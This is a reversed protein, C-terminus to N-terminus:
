VQGSAIQGPRLITTRTVLIEMGKVPEVFTDLIGINKEIVDAPNNTEDMVNRFNYVGNEAQVTAMFNDALTKIELRTQATNFEFLYNKLIAALGDQIYIMVERVHASSLASQVNQQATKNAFIVLGTGNQFIIPNLGFPEISDRDTKSYNYEVGIVGRGGVIGRRNGAVISWPLATTYKDIYNNSVYGAPPVQINAGNERVTLFPTYFAGYNSGQTIGPLTYRITPNKSLNGGDAVYATDFQGLLNLFSPDTSKKFNEVSPANVIAFANQRAKALEFYIAKSGAEIGNGFTDVIYRYSINDKDALAQALKTGSLTDYLINNQQDNTGNPLNYSGLSFGDLTFLNYYDVWETIATYAEVTDVSNITRILIQGECVIKLADVGPTYNSIGIVEKIYTLRSPTTASGTSQILYKGVAVYPSADASVIVENAALSSGPTGSYELVNVTENLSGKYSQVGLVGQAYATDTTDFFYYGPQNIGFDADTTILDQFNADAFANIIFTPIDYTSDSIVISTPVGAIEHYIYSSTSPNFDLYLIQSGGITAGFVAKDGDTLVGNSIDTYLDSSPGCIITGTNGDKQAVFNLDAAKLYKLHTTGVFPSTSIGSGSITILVYSTTVTVDTVPIAKTGAENILFDGVVGTSNAKLNKFINYAAPAGSSSALLDWDGNTNHTVTVGNFIISRYFSSDQAYDLDSAITAQYSLFDITKPNVRELEHGILDLGKDVGDILEGLDFMAKNVACFLGTSPTDANIMDEIFLNNGNLDTFGPIMCGTYAAVLSVQSLNNFQEVYTDSTDTVSVKRKLGQQKDFYKAFTPDSTFREYPFTATPDGGYNGAYLLVDVMFDSIFSEGNLFSPVNAAGYWDQAKIQFGKVNEPAAKRVLVTVQKTGINVLNFLDNFPANDDAGINTLFADTSPFWFKDQNFYGSYLVQNTLGQNAETSSTSFLYSEDYDGTGDTANNLRWLNLALIPGRELAALASRHFFSGKREDVRNIDGFVAKFFATDPCFVPTNFPGKRSFGIVLRLQEAPIAVTQSKDFELRYVGASRFAAIQPSLAM